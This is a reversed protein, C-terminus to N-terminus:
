GTCVLTPRTCIYLYVDSFVLEVLVPDPFADRLQSCAAVRRGGGVKPELRLAFRAPFATCTTLGKSLRIASEGHPM